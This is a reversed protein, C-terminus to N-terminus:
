KLTKFLIQAICFISSSAAFAHFFSFFKPVAASGWEVLPLEVIPKTHNNWQSRKRESFVRVQYCLQRLIHCFIINNNFISFTAAVEYFFGSLPTGRHYNWLLLARCLTQIFRM